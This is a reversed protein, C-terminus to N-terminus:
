IRGELGIEALWREANKYFVKELVEPPYGEARWDKRYLDTLEALLPPSLANAREANTLTVWLLDDQRRVELLGSGSM